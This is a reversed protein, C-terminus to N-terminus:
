FELNLSELNSHTAFINSVAFLPLIQVHRLAGDDKKDFYELQSYNELSCRIAETLHKQRMFEYLSKMKGSVGAKCEIPLVKMDRTIIYDVESLTSEDIDDVGNCHLLLLYQEKLCFRAEKRHTDYLGTPAKYWGRLRYQPNIVYKM